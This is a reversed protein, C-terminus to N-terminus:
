IEGGARYFGEGRIEAAETIVIFANGDLEQVAKAVRNADGARVACFLMQRAHESYGGRVALVSVGCDLTSTIERVADAGKETIMFLLKDHSFGSLVLDICQASIYIVVLSYLVNELSKYVFFSVAIVALDLLLVMRGMSFSPFRLRLLKSLIDTGGTTAGRLFVLGLGAGGLIGGFLASLLKDGTYVPVFLAFVDMFLSMLFTALVTKVIFQFGFKHFATLFLPVNLLFVATGIPVSFLYNLITGIGTFGGLLIGNPATFMDVSLAYLAGGASFYLFDIAAKKATEKKNTKHETKGHM